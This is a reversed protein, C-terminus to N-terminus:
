EDEDQQPLLSRIATYAIQYRVDYKRAIDGITMDLKDFCRRMAESRSVQPAKGKGKYLPDDVFVRGRAGEEGMDEDKTHFYVSAYSIDLTDAIQRRTKGKAVLALVKSKTDGAKGTSKAKAGSPAPDRQSLKSAPKKAAAKKAAAEEAALKRKHTALAAGKLPKQVVTPKPTKSRSPAVAEAAAEREAKRDASQKAKVQAETQVPTKAKASAAAREKSRAAFAERAAIQKPSAPKKGKAPTAKTVKKPPETLEEDDIGEDDADDEDLPSDPDVATMKAAKAAERAERALRNREAVSLKKPPAAELAEVESEDDIDDAVEDEVPEAKTKTPAAGAQRAALAAAVKEVATPM